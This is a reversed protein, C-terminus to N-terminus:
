PVLPTVVRFYREGGAPASASDVTVTRVLPSLNISTLNTWTPALLNTRWQVSYTLGTQAVFSLVGANTETFIVKLLSLANTPITGARYEDLNTMGDGDTDLAANAASNTVGNGFFAAEWLDGIGDGDFDNIMTNTINGAIPSFVGGPAAANTAGVRFQSSPFTTVQYNTITIFPVSTTAFAASARIWRYWLPPAGTALVSITFTSGQLVSRPILPVLFGPRVLVFIFANTSTATSIDDEVVVSFNGHHNNLNAGTFSHSANTANLLNTGNFRWQYRIAGNGAAVVSLTVNTGPIVNQNTPQVTFFVPTVVALAANSSTVYGSGNFALYSYQGAQSYQINTLTLTAATAGYILNGNFRWQYVLGAGSVNATFSATGNIFVSANAPQQVIQPPTGGVPAGGPSVGAGLWNTADNGYDTNVVRNLSAGFGDAIEGWPAVDAYDVREVLIRATGNLDPADPRFLSVREASNDLKGSWPGTIPVNTALSYRARFANLLATNTPNFSVVLLYGEPALVANTPFNFDVGGTLQWRNTLFAPDYLPVANTTLNRLEVYEDDTIDFVNTGVVLDPPHYMIESITVPGVLPLGNQAGPSNTAQAVFHVAGQSNTHRGFAVGNQAGNFGYGHYYGSPHGAADGSFVYAEDGHSSFSFPAPGTNFDAETFVLYGGAPIFTPNPIRFKEPTFFDDSIRWDGVNVANTTPNYLEISDVVPLDTHTLVENVLVGAFAAAPADGAGPTGQWLGSPRWSVKDGWTHFPANENVIVLSLGLGDTIPYWSNNYAFDLVKEGVADDLRITEGANDLTGIFPGAVNTVSPYRQAFAALNKALILVEGPALNTRNAASFTFEVGNTFHVGTLNLALNTSINKLELYEYEERAFPAGALLPPAYMIETIRLYQQALSPAGVYTISSNTRGDPTVLVLTEGRASLQGKFPGVALRRQGGRPGTTRARFAKVDPTVYVRNTTFVVTGSAFTFDVAGRIKWGSLDVPFANTNILEIYEQAQNTSAPNYDIGGFTIFVNTPQTNPIGNASLTAPLYMFERRGPIYFNKLRALEIEFNNTADGTTPNAPGYAPATWGAGGWKLKDIASDARALDAWYDFRSRLWDANTATGVPQLVTDMLTRIRRMWMAKLEPNAWMLAFQTNNNGTGVGLNTTITDSFYGPGAIWVHGLSLDFDWPLAYWEGSGASDRYYYYNKHCCDHDSSIAKAALFDIMNPLNVNDWIYSTRTNVDGITALNNYFDQLDQTGEIRRTKKENGAAGTFTNYMKYLAGNPDYGIRELYEEDGQEMINGVMHFAENRHIRVPIAFHPPSGGAKEYIEINVNNRTHVRDAWTSLIAFDSVDPTGDKIAMKYGPNLNINQSKRPFGASSQGHLTLEVNDRFQGNYFVSGRGGSDLETAAPNLMFTHLIPLANTQPVLVVTGLYQPMTLADTFPPYRTANTRIDQASIAYRVMQGIRAASAPIVASYIGDGALTDGNLGNDLMPLTAENSYAVRYIMTVNSLNHFSKAVRASVVLNESDLPVNPTHFAEFVLPGLNTSANGNASGPTPISFYGGNTGFAVTLARLEPLILFDSDLAHVNLGHFALWNTGPQLLGKFATIDLNEWSNVDADARNTTAVSNWTIPNPFFSANRLAVQVGNLYAVFGDDYRMRLTLFNIATANTVEFPIRLYAVSNVGQMASQISTAVSSTLTPTGRITATMASGDSGDDTTNGPGTPDLAIDIFDGVSVNTIIVSRSTGAGSSGAITSVDVQVGNHFVRGTVGNGALNVKNVTWDM